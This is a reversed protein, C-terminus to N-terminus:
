TQWTQPQEPSYVCFTGTRVSARLHRGLGPHVDEIRKIAEKIRATVTSRAREAADGTRRVRGGLGYAAALEAVLFEKESQAREAAGSDGSADALSLEEELEVLRRKYADRAEEDLVPGTDGAVGDFREAQGSSTKPAGALDLVHVEHGPRDLLVGLDALGKLHRMTAPTGRFSLEWVDGRRQFVGPPTDPSAAAASAEGGLEASVAAVREDIGMDVYADRAATLQEARREADGPGGRRRLMEAYMARTHAVALLVGAGENAALAREFHEEAEDFRSQMTAMAGLFREVSGHTGAALGDIAFRHRHPLLAAYLTEAHEASEESHWLTIGIHCLNSLYESDVPLRDLVGALDALAARRLSDPQGPFLGVMSQGDPALEILEGVAARMEHAKEAARLREIFVWLRQVSAMMRANLSEGLQGIREVEDACRDLGVLDGAQHAEFGRWLPVLWAYLPQGLKGAVRGFTTMDEQADRLRGQELLSIVRLRLGLLELGRDGAERALRIVESTEEERREADDPGAIADCHAALAHGVTRASGVRRAMAMADEALQDRRHAQDTFSLAVSLRAMLDARLASDTPPLRTLAEELLENQAEDWLRVEFGSLGAAFGIAARALGEDDAGSRALDAAEQYASRAAALDGGALLAEGYGLLLDFRVSGPEVLELVQRYHRAAEEYAQARHATEAALQGMAVAEEVSGLPLASILHHAAEAAASPNVDVSPALLRAAALHVERARGAPLVTRLADRIMPHAIELRAPVPKALGAGVAEDMAATAEHLTRGALEAVVGVPTATGAVAAVALIDHCAQSVRALRRRIIAQATEPLSQLVAETGRDRALLSLETVFLPNGRTRERVQEAQEEDVDIGGTASVLHTVADRSLGPVGVHDARARLSLALEGLESDDAVEHDRWAAALLVPLRSADGQLFRLLRLSGPDTWHLDDLILVVPAQTALRTLVASVADFLLFRASTGENEPDARATGLEPLLGLALECRPGWAALLEEVSREAAAERLVQAWIWFPPTGADEWGTGHLVTAGAAVARSDLDALLRTKGIGAEGSLWVLKGTGATAADLHGQLRACIDARGYIAPHAAGDAVTM